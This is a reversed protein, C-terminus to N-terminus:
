NKIMSAVPVPNRKILKRFNNDINWFCCATCSCKFKPM